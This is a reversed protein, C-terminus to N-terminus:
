ASRQQTQGAIRPRKRGRDLMARRGQITLDFRLNSAALREDPPRVARQESLSQRPGEIRPERRTASVVRRGRSCFQARVMRGGATAKWEGALHRNSTACLPVLLQAAPGHGGDEVDAESGQAAGHRSHSSEDWGFGQRNRVECTRAPLRGENVSEPVVLQLSRRKASPKPNLSRSITLMSRVNNRKVQM